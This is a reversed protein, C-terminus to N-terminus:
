PLEVAFRYAVGAVKLTVYGDPTVAAATYTANLFDYIGAGSGICADTGNHTLSIWQTTNQAASHIFLTPNTALGHAFDFGADGQEAIILANSTASVGFFWSDPTQTTNWSISAESPIGFTFRGDDALLVDGGSPSLQLDGAGTTIVANTQNHYISVWQTTSQARSHIFLTPDGADAHAFDFGVDGQQCIVLGNSDAGLGLVLADATQTTSYRITADAGSGFTLQVDDNMLITGNAPSLHIGGGGSGVTFYSGTHKLSGFETTSQNASHIFITPNTADAHAFDFGVDGTQCMVLANGTSPVGLVLADVTQTTSYFLRADNSNGFALQSDNSFFASSDFYTVGNVELVGSVLLDDNTNLTHSTVGADGIRTYDGTTPLITTKTGDSTIALLSTINLSAGSIAGGATITGPLTANYNLLGVVLGAM